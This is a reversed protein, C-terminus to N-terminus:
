FAEFARHHRRERTGLGQFTHNDLANARRPITSGRATWFKGAFVVQLCFALDEMVAFQQM